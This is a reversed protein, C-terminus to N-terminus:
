AAGDEHKRVDARIANRSSEDRGVSEVSWGCSCVAILNGDVSPAQSVFHDIIRGMGLISRVVPM